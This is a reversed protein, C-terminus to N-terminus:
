TSSGDLVFVVDITMAQAASNTQYSNPCILLERRSFGLEIM